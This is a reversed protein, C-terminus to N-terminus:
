TQKIRDDPILRGEKLIPLVPLTDVGAAIEVDDAYGLEALLRGHEGQQITSKLTTRNTRYLLLALSGADNLSLEKNHETTLLHIVMGGCITDEISF